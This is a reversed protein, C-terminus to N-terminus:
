YPWVETALDALHEARQAITEEHWVALEDEAEPDSPRHFYRNLNLKSYKVLEPRKKQWTENSLAPNLSGTILTLNGLTHLVHNRNQVFTLKRETSELDDAPIPWNELWNRPMVHEITLGDPLPIRESKNEHLAMDMAELVARLKYQRLRQYLPNVKIAHFLEENDPFRVSDGGRGNKLFEALAKASVEGHRDMFKIADLFLRNYNKSTLCCIMRRMLFSELVELFKDFEPQYMPLLKNGALLLLPYVTATDVAELRRLFLALRSSDSPQSFTRFSRAYRELAQLHGKTDCPHETLPFAKAHEEDAATETDDLELDQVYHKFSEFLHTPRIEERMMLTLYHQM